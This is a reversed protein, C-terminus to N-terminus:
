GALLAAVTGGLEYARERHEDDVEGLMTLPEAALRWGLGTTIAVM